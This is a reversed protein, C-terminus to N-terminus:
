HFKNAKLGINNLRKMLHNHPENNKIKLEDQYSLLTNVKGNLQNIKGKIKLIRNMKKKPKLNKSEVKNLKKYEKKMLNKFFEIKGDITAKIRTQLSDIERLKNLQELYGNSQINLPPTYMPLEDYDEPLLITKYKTDATIVPAPSRPSSRKEVGFNVNDLFLGFAPQQVGLFMLGTVALMGLTKLWGSVPTPAAQHPTDAAQPMQIVDSEGAGTLPHMEHETDNNNVPKLGKADTFTLPNNNVMRFLNVGEINGAPDPNIWRMLWSIYYRLGYYILGTLDREKASYRLLKFSALGSNAAYWCATGGFPFFVECNIVTGQGCSELTISGNNNACQYHTILKDRNKRRAPYRLITVGMLKIIGNINTEKGVIDHSHLEMGPLYRVHKRKFYDNEFSCSSKMLREGCCTYNYREYLTFSLNLQCM